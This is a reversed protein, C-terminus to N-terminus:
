LQHHALLMRAGDQWHQDTCATYHTWTAGQLRALCDAAREAGLLGSGGFWSNMAAVAADVDGDYAAVSLLHGHEHAVVDYVRDAPVLPSVYVTDHYWDTTGWSGWAGTLVWHTSPDRPGPLEAVARDLRQQATSPALVPPRPLPRPRPPAPQRVVTRLLPRRARRVVRVPHPVPPLPRRAVPRREAHVLRTLPAAAAAARPRGAPLVAATTGALLVLVHVAVLVLLSTPTRSAPTRSAPTRSAPTRSAPM